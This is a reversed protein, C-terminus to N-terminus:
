GSRLLLGATMVCPARSLSATNALGIVTYCRLITCGLFISVLVLFLIKTDFSATDCINPLLLWYSERLRHENGKELCSLSAHSWRFVNASFVGFINKVCLKLAFFVPHSRNDPYRVYLNGPQKKVSLIAPRRERHVM